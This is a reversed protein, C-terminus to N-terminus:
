KSLKNSLAHYLTTKLQDVDQANQVVMTNNTVQPVDIKAIDALEKLAKIEAPELPAGRSLKAIYKEVQMRAALLVVNMLDASTVKGKLHAKRFVIQSRGDELKTIELSTDKDTEDM